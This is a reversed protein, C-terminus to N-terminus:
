TIVGGTQLYFYGVFAMALGWQGISVDKGEGVATKLFPYSIIGAALGYAINYTLPMVLITIGASFQWVPLDWKIDTINELMLIGVVVLVIHSAYTPIAAVLPVFVLSCLFLIGVVLATMGTRGGESIGTSSEVYTTVTPTGIISGVTTGIADAMLPKEMEPLDGNEDLFGGYQSVAVLCGATGFFDVFFLSVVVFLFTVPDVNYFGEIFAGFLPTIDYNPNPIETPALTGGNVVGAMTFLWGFAATVLLGIILGGRVGRAYLMLTFLLGAISLLAVPNQAINGLGVLTGGNDIVVQMEQLGIFLLFSGVGAGMAFKVPTPFIEVIYRRAGFYSMVIFIVGEVFVAALATQWPIGLGIVVSFVFFSGVGLGPAVAFPRKAYLAMVLIGAASALITAVALMQTVEGQSYGDIQVAQSVMGPIVVIVFSMTLFTTLGALVETRTDTNWKDYEFYNAFYEAIGSLLDDSKTSMLPM